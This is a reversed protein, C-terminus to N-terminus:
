RDEVASKTIGDTLAHMREVIYHMRKPFWFDAPDASPAAHNLNM